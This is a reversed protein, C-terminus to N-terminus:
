IWHGGGGANRSARLALAPISLAVRVTAPVVAVPTPLTPVSLTRLTQRPVLVDGLSARLEAAKAEFVRATKTPELRGRGGRTQRGIDSSATPRKVDRRQAVLSMTVHRATTPLRPPHHAYCVTLRDSTPSRSGHRVRSSCCFRFGFCLIRIWM